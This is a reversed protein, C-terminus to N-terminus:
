NLLNALVYLIMFFYYLLFFIAKIKIPISIKNFIKIFYDTIKFSIKMISIIVKNLIHLIQFNLVFVTLGLPLLIYALFPLIRTQIEPIGQINGVVKKYSPLSFQFWCFDLILYSLFAVVFRKM